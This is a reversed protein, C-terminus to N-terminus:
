LEEFMWLQGMGPKEVFHNEWAHFSASTRSASQSENRAPSNAVTRASTRPESAANPRARVRKKPRSATEKMKTRGIASGPIMVPSARIENKTRHPTLKENHVITM